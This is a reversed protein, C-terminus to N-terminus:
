KEKEGKEPYVEFVEFLRFLFSLLAFHLQRAVFVHYYMTCLTPIYRLTVDISQRHFPLCASFDFNLHLCYLYPSGTCRGVAINAMHGQGTRYYLLICIFYLLFLVFFFSLVM